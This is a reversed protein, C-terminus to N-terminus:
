VVIYMNYPVQGTKLLVDGPGLKLLTASKCIKSYEPFTLNAFFPM